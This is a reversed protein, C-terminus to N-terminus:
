RVFILTANYIKSEIKDMSKVFFQDPYQQQIELILSQPLFESPEVYVIKKNKLLNKCVALQHSEEFMAVGKKYSIYEFYFPDQNVNKTILFETLFEIHAQNFEDTIKGYPYNIGIKDAFFDMSRNDRPYCPGGYGYGFGWRVNEKVFNLYLSAANVENHRNSKILLQGISNYFSILMTNRANGALKLIEATLRSVEFVPTDLAMISSFIRRCIDGVKQDEVGILLSKPDKIGALVNGQAVLTPIYAVKVGYSSLKSQFKDCDGPNTTCGIVLIKDTVPTTSNIFDQVVEEVASIDYDGLDTSPTPVMVYIFDSHSIVDQNSVTFQINSKKILDEVGPETSKYTKNKLDIVYEQKYSSACVEYGMSEFILAYPLGLKGVGIIGIKNKM